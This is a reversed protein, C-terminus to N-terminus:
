ILEALDLRSSNERRRANAESRCAEYYELVLGDIRQPLSAALKTGLSAIVFILRRASTFVATAADYCM